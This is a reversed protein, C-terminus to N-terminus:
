RILRITSGDDARFKIYTHTVEIVKWVQAPDVGRGENDQEFKAFSDGPKMRFSKPKPRTEPHHGSRHDISSHDISSHDISSM